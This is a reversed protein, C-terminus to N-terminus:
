SSVPPAGLWDRAEQLGQAFPLARGGANAAEFSADVARAKEVWPALFAADAPDRRFGTLAAQAEAAGYM